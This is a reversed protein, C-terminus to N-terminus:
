AVSCYLPNGGYHFLLHVNGKIPMAIYAGVRRKTHIIIIHLWEKMSTKRGNVSFYLNGFSKIKLNM